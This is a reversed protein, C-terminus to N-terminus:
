SLDPTRFNYFVLDNGGENQRNLFTNKLLEQTEKDSHLGYDEGPFVTALANPVNYM